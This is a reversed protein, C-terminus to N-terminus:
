LFFSHTVESRQILDSLCVKPSNFSNQQWSKLVGSRAWLPHPPRTSWWPARTNTKLHHMGPSPSFSSIRGQGKMEAAERVLMPDEWVEAWNPEDFWGSHIFKTAWNHRVRRLGMSQLRGPGETWPIRWALISSHIAMGKELPDEWCLSQFQTEQMVPLNKVSQVLLVDFSFLAKGCLFRRASPSFRPWRWTRLM